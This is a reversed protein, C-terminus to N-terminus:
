SNLLEPLIEANIEFYHLKKHCNSCLIVCKQIELKLKKMNININCIASSITFLKNERHVHHFELCCSSNEGCIECKHTRKFNNVYKIKNDKLKRSFVAENTKKKIFKRNPEKVRRNLIPDIM